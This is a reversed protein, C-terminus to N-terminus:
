TMDTFARAFFSLFQRMLRFLTMLSQSPALALAVEGPTVGTHEIIVGLASAGEDISIENKILGALSAKQLCTVRM